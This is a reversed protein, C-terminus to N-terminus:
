IERIKTMDFIMPHVKGKLSLMVKTVPSASERFKSIALALGFIKMRQKDKLVYLLCFM